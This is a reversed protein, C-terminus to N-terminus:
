WTLFHSRIICHSYDWYLIGQWNGLTSSSFTSLRKSQLNRPERVQTLLALQLFGSHALSDSLILIHVWRDSSVQAASHLHKQPRRYKIHTCLSSAVSLFLARKSGMFEMLTLIVCCSYKLFTFLGERHSIQFCLKIVRSCWLLSM